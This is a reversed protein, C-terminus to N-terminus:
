HVTTNNRFNYRCKSGRMGENHDFDKKKKNQNDKKEILANKCVKVADDVLSNWQVKDQVKRLVM